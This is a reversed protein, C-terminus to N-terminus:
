HYKAPGLAIGIVDGQDWAVATKASLADAWSGSSNNQSRWTVSIPETKQGSASVYNGVWPRLRNTVAVMDYTLQGDCKVLTENASPTYDTTGSFAMWESQILASPVQVAGSSLIYTGRVDAKVQPEKWINTAAATNPVTSASILTAPPQANTPLQDISINKGDLSVQWDVQESNLLWQLQGTVDGSYKMSSSASNDTYKISKMLRNPDVRFAALGSRSYGATESESDKASLAFSEAQVIMEDIRTKALDYVDVNGKFNGQIHNEQITYGDGRVNLGSIDYSASRIIPQFDQVLAEVQLDCTGSLGVGLDTNALIKCRSECAALDTKISATAKTPPLSPSGAQLAALRLPSSMSLDINERESRLKASAHDIQVIEMGAIQFSATADGSWAPEELRGTPLVVTLPTSRIAATAVVRDKSQQNWVLTADASGALSKTPLKIWQSVRKELKDLDLKATLEGQTLTGRGNIDCFESICGVQFEPSQDASNPTVKAQLQLADDWQMRKGQIEAQLAGLRINCDIGPVSVEGSPMQRVSLTAKGSTLKTQERMVILSPAVQSLKALDIEGDIAYEAGQLWPQALTPGALPLVMKASARLYGVDSTLSLQEGRIMSGNLSVNGVLRIQNLAAGQDGLLSSSFVRLNDVQATTIKATLNEMSRIDIDAQVTASGFLQDIPLSSIRRKVLGAWELPLGNTTINLHMTEANDNSASILSSSKDNAEIKAQFQGTSRLILNGQHDLAAVRGALEVQPVPKASTPLDLLANTISFEWQDGTVSDRAIVAVDEIQISGKFERSNPATTPVETVPTQYKALIPQLAEELSTINPQVDVALRAQRIYITRLDTYNTLLRWISLQTEVEGVKLLEIGREDMVRVNAARFPSFWGISVEGVQLKLPDVGAYQNVLKTVLGANSAVFPVATIIGIILLGFLIAFLRLKGFRRRRGNGNSRVKGFAEDSSQRSRAM